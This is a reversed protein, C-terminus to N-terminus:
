PLVEAMLTSRAVLLRADAGDIETRALPRVSLWVTLRYVGPPHEAGIRVGDRLVMTGGGADVHPSTGNRNPFYWIRNGSPDSVREAYAGLYGSAVASNVLFVLTDGARCQHDLTRECSIDLVGVAATTEAGMAPFHSPARAWLAVLAALSVTAIAGPALRRIFKRGSAPAVSQLVRQEIADYEQGSLYGGTLLRDIHQDEEDRSRTM